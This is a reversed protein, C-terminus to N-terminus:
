GIRNLEIPKTSEYRLQTADETAEYFKLPEFLKPVMFIHEFGPFNSSILTLWLALDSPLIPIDKRNEQM